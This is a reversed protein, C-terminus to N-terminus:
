KKSTPEFIDTASITSLDFDKKFLLAYRAMMLVKPNMKNSKQRIKILSPSIYKPKM